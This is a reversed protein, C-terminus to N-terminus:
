FIMILGVIILLVGIFTLQIFAAKGFEDDSKYNYGSILRNIQLGIIVLGTFFLFIGIILKM